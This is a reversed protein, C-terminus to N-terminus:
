HYDLRGLRMELEHKGVACDVVARARARVLPRIGARASCVADERKEGHELLAADFPRAARGFPNNAKMCPQSAVVPKEVASEVVAVRPLRCAQVVRKGVCLRKGLVYHHDLARRSGSAVLRHRPFEAVANHPM